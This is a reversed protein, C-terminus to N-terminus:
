YSMDNRAFARFTGTIRDSEKWNTVIIDTDAMKDAFITIIKTVAM